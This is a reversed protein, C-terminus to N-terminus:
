VNPHPSSLFLEVGCHWLLPLGSFYISRPARLVDVDWILAGEDGGDESLSSVQLFHSCDPSSHQIEQSRQLPHNWMFRTPNWQGGSIISSLSHIHPSQVCYFSSGYTKQALPQHKQVPTIYVNPSASLSKPPKIGGCTPLLGWKKLDSKKLLHQM